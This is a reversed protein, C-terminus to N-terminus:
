NETIKFDSIRLFHVYPENYVYKRFNAIARDDDAKIWIEVGGDSEKRTIGRVLSAVPHNSQRIANWVADKLERHAKLSLAPLPTGCTKEFLLHYYEEKNNIQTFADLGDTHINADKCLKLYLELEQRFPAFDNQMLARNIARNLCYVGYFLSDQTHTAIMVAYCSDAIRFDKQATLSDGAKEELIAKMSRLDENLLTDSQQEMRRLLPLMRNFQKSQVFYAYQAIYSRKRAPNLRIASDQLALIASDNFCLRPRAYEYDTYYFLSDEQILSDADALLRIITAEYPNDTVSQKYGNHCATLSFLLILLASLFLSSLMHIGSKQIKQVSGIKREGTKMTLINHM